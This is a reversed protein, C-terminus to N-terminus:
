IAALGKEAKVVVKKVTDTVMKDVDYTEGNVGIDINLKVNFKPKMSSFLAKLDPLQPPDPGLDYLFKIMKLSMPKNYYRLQTVMGGFGGDQTVFLDGNNHKAFNSLVASKYLKGDIFVDCSREHGVVALHFWRNLPFNEINNSIGDLNVIAHDSTPNLSPKTIEPTITYYTEGQWNPMKKSPILDESDDNAFNNVKIIIYMLPVSNVNLTQNKALAVIIEEADGAEKLIEAYSLIKVKVMKNDIREFGNIKVVADKNPKKDEWAQKINILYGPYGKASKMSPPKGFIDFRIHLDNKDPDIWVGPQANNGFRDGKHFIHKWKGRRYDWDSVHLWSMMTYSSGNEPIPM